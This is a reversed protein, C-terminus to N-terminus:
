YGVRRADEASVGALDRVIGAVGAESRSFRRALRSAEEDRLTEYAALDRLLIRRDRGVKVFPLVGGDLLKYVHARSMRLLHAADAPTVRDGPVGVFVDEGSRVAETLAGVAERLASALPLRDLAGSLEDLEEPQVESADLTRM